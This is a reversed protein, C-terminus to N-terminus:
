EKDGSKRTSAARLSSSHTFTKGRAATFVKLGEVMKGKGKDANVVISSAGITHRPHFAMSSPERIQLSRQRPPNESQHVNTPPWFLKQLADHARIQGDNITADHVDANEYQTKSTKTAKKLARRQVLLKRGAVTTPRPAGRIDNQTVEVQTPQTFDFKETQNLQPNDQSTGQNESQPKSSRNLNRLAAYARREVDTITEVNVYPASKVQSIPALFTGSSVGVRRKVPLKKGAVTTPIPSVGIEDQTVEVQTPQTLDIEETQNVQSNELPNKQQKEAEIKNHGPEKCYGCTFKHYQKPMKQLGGTKRKKKSPSENASAKRDKKPRGMKKKKLFSPPLPPIHGTKSWLEDHCMPMIAHNYVNTYTEVSYCHNVFDEPDLGEANIASIAHTCPIGSIDWRRCDCTMQELNVSYRTGDKNSSVEYLLHSSKLPTYKTALKQNDEVLKRIRPCIKRGEWKREARDRYRQLRSMMYQRIWDLMVLIPKDRADVLVKNFQECMNNVLTDCKEYTTFHSRSWEAPPKAALWEYCKKDVDKIAMMAVNFEPVTTAKAADWMLDKYHQGRFGARKLNGHLHRVCFHNEVGPLVIEFAGILGKQRDSMFTYRHEIEIFLDDKLLGLFWEWNDKNEVPVIAYALPYPDNNPDMCVAALLVGRNLGSLHCGDVGIWPRCGALFGSKVAGLCVYIRKFQKGDPIDQLELIVTSGPNRERLTEAYDWLKSYQDSTSGEIIKLAKQRARVAQQRSINVGLKQVAAAWFGKLSRNPDVRLETELKRALWGSKANSVKVQRPCTHRLDLERIQYSLEGTVKLANIHWMCGQSRQKCQAYIRTTDNKAFKTPRGERVSYDNVVDKFVLRTSFIKGCELSGRNATSIIEQKGSDEDINESDVSEFSSDESAYTTDSTDGDDDNNKAKLESDSVVNELYIIEDLEDDCSDGNPVFEVVNPKDSDLYVMFERSISAGVILMLIDRETSLQKLQGEDDLGYYEKKGTYGLQDCLNGLCDMGWARSDVFDFASYTGDLYEFNGCDNIVVGGHCIKLTYWYPEYSYNPHPMHLLTKRRILPAMM